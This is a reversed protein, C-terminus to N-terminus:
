RSLVHMWVPLVCPLVCTASVRDQGIMSPDPSGPVSYSHVPCARCASGSTQGMVPLYKGAPCLSCEATGSVEKYTGTVCAECPGGDPGTYGANCKCDTIVESATSSHSFEPCVLCATAAVATVFTGAACQTCPTSGNTDKFHGATCASCQAGNAGTYGKFCTCNSVDGSGPGSSSHMPCVRCTSASTQGTEPSYTGASCMSCPATGNAGKYTGAPCADCGGAESRSYGRNCLCGSPPQWVEVPMEMMSTDTGNYTVRLMTGIMEEFYTVKLYHFGMSLDVDAGKREPPHLGGNDVLHRSDVYLHSGDDSETFFHYTGSGNVQSHLNDLITWSCCLVISLCVKLFGTFVAAFYDAPVGVAWSGLSNFDIVTHTMELLPEREDLDAPVSTANDSINYFRTIWGQVHLGRQM